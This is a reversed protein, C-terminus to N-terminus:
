GILAARLVIAWFLSGRSSRTQSDRLSLFTGAATAAQPLLTGRALAWTPCSTSSKKWFFKTLLYQRQKGRRESGCSLAALFAKAANMAVTEFQVSRQANSIQEPPLLTLGLCFIYTSAAAAPANLQVKYGDCEFPYADRLVLHRAQIEDMVDQAIKEASEEEDEARVAELEEKLSSFTCPEGSAWTRFEVVDAIEPTEKM